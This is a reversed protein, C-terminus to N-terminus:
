TALPFYLSFTTGQMLKSKVCILGSHEEMIKKCISLGLGTGKGIEKTSYFPEFIMGLKEEPIGRGTDSIDVVIYNTDDLLETRTRLVLAGGKPMADFANVILNYLVMKVQEGDVLAKFSLANYEKKLEIDSRESLVISFEKLFDEIVDELEKRELHLPSKRSFILIDKLTKELKQAESSIIEAYEQVKKIDASCKLIRKAFGGMSTLPNRIEHAVDATLRGLAALKEAEVLKKQAKELDYLAKEAECTLTMIKEKDKEREAALLGLSIAILFLFSIRLFYDTWRITDFDFDGAILYLLSSAIAVGVGNYTGYFFTHLATLLYFGIYFSSEFGGTNIVLLFVFILDFILGLFYIKRKGTEWPKFFLLIYILVNYFLYYTYISFVASFEAPSLRSFYLWGFGGIFVIFRLLFFVIDPPEVNKKAINWRIKLDLM